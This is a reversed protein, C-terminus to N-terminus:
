KIQIPASFIETDATVSLLYFGPTVQAYDLTLKDLQNAQLYHPEGILKGSLDSLSVTANALLKKDLTLHILGTTPNPYVSLHPKVEEKVDVSNLDLFATDSGCDNSAVLYMEHYGSTTYTHTPEFDASTNGDGFNWEYSTADYSLNNFEIDFSDLNPSFQATPLPDVVVQVVNSSSECGLWDEISILYAGTEYVTIDQSVSGSAWEYYPYGDPGSLTVSEGECFQLPGNATVVPQPPNAVQEVEFALTDTCGTSHTVVLQYSGATLLVNQGTEATPLWEYGDYTEPVNLEAGNTGVCYETNGQLTFPLNEPCPVQALVAVIPLIIFLLVTVGRLAM